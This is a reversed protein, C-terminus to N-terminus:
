EDFTLESSLSIDTTVKIYPSLYPARPVRGGQGGRHNRGQSALMECGRGSRWTVDPDTYYNLCAAASLCVCLRAHGCHMEQPRRSVRFTVM